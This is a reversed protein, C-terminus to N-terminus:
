LIKKFLLILRKCLILEFIVLCLLFHAFCSEFEVPFSKGGRSEQCIEWMGFREDCVLFIMSGQYYCGFYCCKVVVQRKSCFYVQKDSMSRVLIAQGVFACVCVSIACKVCKKAGSATYKQQNVNSEFIVSFGQYYWSLNNQFVDAPLNLFIM